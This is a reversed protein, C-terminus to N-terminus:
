STHMVYVSIPHKEEPSFFEPPQLGSTKIGLYREIYTRIERNLMNEKHTKISRSDPNRIYRDDIDDFYFIIVCGEPDEVPRLEVDAPNFLKSVFKVISDVENKLETTM